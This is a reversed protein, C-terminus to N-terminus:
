KCTQLSDARADVAAQLAQATKILLASGDTLAKVQEPVTKLIEQLAVDDDIAVATLANLTTAQAHGIASQNTGLAALDSATAQDVVVAPVARCNLQGQLTGNNDNSVLLAITVASLAFITAVLAGALLVFLPHKWVTGRPAAIPRTSLVLETTSPSDDGQIPLNM